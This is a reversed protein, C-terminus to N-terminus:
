VLTSAIYLWTQLKTYPLLAISTSCLCKLSLPTLTMISSHTEGRWYRASTYYCCSSFLPLQLWHSAARDRVGWLVQFQSLAPVALAALTLHSSVLFMSSFLHVSMCLTCLPLIAFVSMDASLSFCNTLSRLCSKWLEWCNTLLVALHRCLSHLFHVQPSILILKFPCWCHHLETLPICNLLRRWFTSCITVFKIHTDYSIYRLDGILSSHWLINNIQSRYPKGWQKARLHVTSWNCFKIMMIRLQLLVILFLTAHKVRFNM